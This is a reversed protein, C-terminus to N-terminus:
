CNWEIGTVVPLQLGIILIVKINMLPEIKLEDLVMLVATTSAHKAMELTFYMSTNVFFIIYPTEIPMQSSPMHM